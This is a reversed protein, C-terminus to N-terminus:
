RLRGGVQQIMKTFVSRIYADHPMKTMLFDEFLVKTVLNYGNFTNQVHFLLVCEESDENFSLKVPTWQKELDYIIDEIKDMTLDQM